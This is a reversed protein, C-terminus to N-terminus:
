RKRAITLGDAIGVMAADVRDDSAIRANLDAVIRTPEDPEDAVVRGAMLVNDLVILGNPRTRVLSEEYYEPYEAKDADIFVFDFHEREPLARLTEVAPGTIIEVRDGVGAAELNRSATEAYEESLELCILRGAPALGRAIAIASYGTFTGIELAERAGITRVLLEMFAGQDPAIQMAALSGMEATEAQVRALVEDQRAHAVLYEHLRDDISTFKSM